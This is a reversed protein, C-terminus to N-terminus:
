FDFYAKANYYCIGEVIRKLLFEDKPYEGAEVWGGILGCLIRRFYEHRSYSLFSRSDTLMGIFSSLLGLNAYSTMHKIIGDKHDHFWWACGHQLKGAIGNGQFCGIVTNIAANDEPNLSYVITKPLLNECNLADLFKGLEKASFQNSIADVGADAGNRRYVNSNLDRQVSLHLQMVWRHKAYAKGLELLLATKYKRIETLTIMQGTRRKEFIPEIENEEFDEFLDCELGHDCVRCGAKEFEDMRKELAHVLQAFSTIKMEAAVSLEDIYNLFDDREIQVARDPRFGPLVKIGLNEKQLAKHWVLSDKPDDTTCVVEVHSRKLLERASMNGCALKENCLNWVTEATEECLHGEYGFYNRLELHSWHYLPNGIACELTKAWQIFKDKDSADGTIKNEDIGHWRMQRWKYHDSALWAQTINDYKKDEYIDRPSLHCHYDIIPLSKAYDHYLHRATDTTLLFNEDMFTEM